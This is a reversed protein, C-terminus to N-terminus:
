SRATTGDDRGSGPLLNDMSISNRVAPSRKRVLGEVACCEIKFEIHTGRQQLTRLLAESPFAVGDLEAELAMLDTRDRHKGLPRECGLLVPIDPFSLRAERFVSGATEPDAPDCRAMSTFPVPRFLVLVLARAQYRRIIDLATSEGRIRGYHLGIIVHPIAPVDHEELLGLAREFDMTRADLHLVSRITADYGVVDMLAGDVQADRLARAGARKVLGTHVLVRLGLEERIRRMTETFPEIPVSGDRQSGGSVLIGTGGKRSWARAYELLADPSVVEPLHRLVSGECHACRPVCQSGTVSVCGMGCSIRNTFEETDFRKFSPAFLSMPRSM